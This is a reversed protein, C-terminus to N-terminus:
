FVCAPESPCSIADYEAMIDAKYSRCAKLEAEANFFGKKV